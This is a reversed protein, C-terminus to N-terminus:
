STAYHNYYSSQTFSFEFVVGGNVPGQIKNGHCNFFITKYKNISLINLLIYININVHSQVRSLFFRLSVGGMPSSRLVRLDQSSGFGLTLHEVSQAM